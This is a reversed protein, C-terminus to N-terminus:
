GARHCLLCVKSKMKDKIRTRLDIRNPQDEVPMVTKAEIIAIQEKVQYKKTAWKTNEGDPAIPPNNNRVTSGHSSTGFPYKSPFAGETSLSLINLEDPSSNGSNTHSNDDLMVSYEEVDITEPAILSEHSRNSGPSM